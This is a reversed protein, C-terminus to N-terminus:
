VLLSSSPHPSAIRSTSGGKYFTSVGLTYAAWSTAASINTTTASSCPTAPPSHPNRISPSHPLSSSLVFSSGHAYGIQVIPIRDNQKWEYDPPVYTYDRLMWPEVRKDEVDTFGYKLAAHGADKVGASALLTTDKPTALKEFYHEKDIFVDITKHLQRFAIDGDLFDNPHPFARMVRRLLVHGGRSALIQARRWEVPDDPADFGFFSKAPMPISCWEDTPPCASSSSNIHDFEPDHMRAFAASAAHAAPATVFVKEAPLVDCPASRSEVHETTAVHHHLYWAPVSVVVLMCLLM